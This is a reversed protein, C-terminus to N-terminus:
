RAGDPLNTTGQQATGEFTLAIWTHGKGTTVTGGTPTADSLRVRLAVGEAEDHLGHAVQIRGINTVLSDLANASWTAATEYTSSYDYALEFSLDARTNKKAFVLVRELMHKGQIGGLKIWGTEAKMTIWATGADLHAAAVTPLVEFYVSGGKDLRAYRWAGGLYVMCASASSRSAIAEASYKDVSVWTKLTLDHVLAVGTDSPVNATESAVCEFRVLAHASDLTAAVIVPFSGLTTQVAEGIWDVSQARSLLEIGRESQFFVGLSTVVVSRPDICGVDVALRRPTGLGGSAGNDAPPEGTVAFISRRKFVYLTGDQAALATVEGGDVMDLRFLPNFWLGEGLVNQSSYWLTSGTAGVLMDNYSAICSFGPPARRDQGAGNTGPLVGTGYLKRASILNADTTSDTLSVSAADADNPVAGVFYYVSGGDTTRWFCVREPAATSSTDFRASVTLPRTELLLAKNALAGTSASPLSVGSTVWNGDGDCTEYTAVYTYGVAPSLGTGTQTATPKSPAVLICAEGYRAGDFKSVIGGSLYTAGAHEASQWRTPSAFDLEVLAAAFDGTRTLSMVTYAKTGSQVIHARKTVGANALGPEINIVPRIAENGAGSLDVLMFLNQSNTTMTAGGSFAFCYDRSNYRLVRSALCLNRWGGGTGAVTAGASTSFASYFVTGDTDDTFFVRGAATGTVVLRLGDFYPAGSGTVMTGTTSLTVALADADLGIVKVVAAENWTVWLTDAVSGVVDVAVPTVSSTNITRTELVGSTDVTKVTVRDTGASNNVYAVAVRNSLSQVALTFASFGAMSRDTVVNGRDVWGTTIGAANSCDLTFLRINATSAANSALLCATTGYYALAGVVEAAGTYLVEPTRLVTGNVDAVSCSLNVVGSSHLIVLVGGVLVVDEVGSGGSTTTTSPAALLRYTAEPVRGTVTATNTTESFVDLEAGDITCLRDGASFMKYGAARNTADLRTKVIYDTGLRKSIAGRRDQRVNELVAFGASPDLVEDQQSEDLGAAFAFQTLNRPVSM